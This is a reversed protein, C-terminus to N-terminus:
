SYSDINKKIDNNIKEIMKEQDMTDPFVWELQYSAVTPNDKVEYQIIVTNNTSQQIHFLTTGGYNSVGARIYTRTEGFIQSQSHGRLIYELLTAYKVRMGGGSEVREFMRGSTSGIKYAIFVVIAIIFVWILNGLEVEVKESKKIPSDNLQVGSGTRQTYLGNNYENATETALDQIQKIGNSHVKGPANIFGKYTNTFNDESM